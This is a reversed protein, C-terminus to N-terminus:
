VRRNEKALLADRGAQTIRYKNFGMVGGEVGCLEILKNAELTNRIQRGGIHGPFQSVFNRDGIYRLTRKQARTLKM